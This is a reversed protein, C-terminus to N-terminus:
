PESREYRKTAAGDPRIVIVAMRRRQAGWWDTGAPSQNDVVVLEDALHATMDRTSSWAEFSKESTLSIVGAAEGWCMESGTMLRPLRDDHFTQIPVRRTQRLPVCLWYPVAHHYAWLGAYVGVWDGFAMVEGPDFKEMVRRIEAEVHRRHALSASKAWSVVGLVPREPAATRAGVLQEATIDSLNTM